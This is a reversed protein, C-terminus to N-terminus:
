NGGGGPSALNVGMATMAVRNKIELGGIRVPSFLKHFMKM